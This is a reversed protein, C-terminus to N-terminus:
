EGRRRLFERHWAPSEFAIVVALEPRDELILYSEGGPGRRSWVSRRPTALAAEPGTEEEQPAAGGLGGYEDTLLSEVSRFLVARDEQPAQLAVEFKVVRGAAMRAVVVAPRGVYTGAYLQDGHPAPRGLLKFDREAMRREVEAAESGWPISAFTLERARCGALMAVLVLLLVTRM